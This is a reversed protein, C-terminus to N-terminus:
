AVQPAEGAQAASGIRSTASIIGGGLVEEPNAGRYFVASQGPAVAEVPAEFDINWGSGNGLRAPSVDGHSRYQVLIEEGDAAPEDVFSVESLTCSSVELDARDGVQIANSAADIGTVYIPVGVSIGLGKRQGITYRGVGRHQGVVRGDRDTIPGPHNAAEVKDSLYADLNGDRVFCIEQSDPKAATRLGLETAIRRTESKEITGVPFRTHRLDEQSLMWLVYSQDKTRDAGRLLRYRGGDQEVRAYHGTALVEAGLQKARDLLADFKIWQNCRVCPNPTLGSAYTRDFDAIVTQEFHEAFNFVYFPIDLVDAVRRADEAAGLNCCGSNNNMDDGKWLKLMIGTVDYGEDKLLAASVSSDVGGSMAVVAKPRTM